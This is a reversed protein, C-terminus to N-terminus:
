SVPSTDGWRVRLRSLRRQLTRLHKRDFRGPHRRRILELLDTASPLGEREDLFPLVEKEWVDGLPDPRTRWTHARKTASPLPGRQWKRASRISMGAVRAADKQTSGEELMRRLLMVKGDTIM